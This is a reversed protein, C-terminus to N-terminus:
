HRMKAGNGEATELEQVTRLRIGAVGGNDMFQLGRLAVSGKSVRTRLKVDGSLSEWPYKPAASELASIETQTLNGKNNEFGFSSDGSMDVSVKSGIKNFKFSHVPYFWFESDPAIQNGFDDASAHRTLARQNGDSASFILIYGSLNSSASPKLPAPCLLRTAAKLRHFRETVDM